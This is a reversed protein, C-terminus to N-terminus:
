DDSRTREDYATALDGLDSDPIADIEADIANAEAEVNAAPNEVTEPLEVTDPESETSEAPEEDPDGGTIKRGTFWGALALAVGVAWQRARKSTVAVAISAALAALLAVDVADFTM